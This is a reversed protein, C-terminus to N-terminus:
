EPILKQHPLQPNTEQSSIYKSRSLVIKQLTPPKRKQIKVWNQSQLLNLKIDLCQMNQSLGSVTGSSIRPLGCITLELRM